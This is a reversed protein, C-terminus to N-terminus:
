AQTGTEVMDRDLNRDIILNFLSFFVPFGIFFILSLLPYYFSLSVIASIILVSVLIIAGEQWRKLRSRRLRAVKNKLKANGNQSIVDAWLLRDCAYVLLFVIDYGIAPVVEDPHLMFWKTFIPILALFFMYLLNRWLTMQSVKEMSESLSHHRVWHSGVIFFSVFFILISRLLGMIEPVAFTDPLPIDLVMITIIIAIVGDSFAELRNKTFTFM